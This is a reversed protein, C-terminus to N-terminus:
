VDGLSYRMRKHNRRDKSGKPKGLKKVKAKLRALWDKETM